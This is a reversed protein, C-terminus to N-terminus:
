DFGTCIHGGYSEMDGAYNFERLRDTKEGNNEEKGYLVGETDLRFLNIHWGEKKFREELDSVSKGEGKMPEKLRMQLKKLREWYKPFLYYMAKLEKLNKNRCCYCSLRDFYDYLRIGEEEWTIGLEYCREINHAQTFGADVLPYIKRGSKVADEDVREKEDFAIGVYEVVEYQKLNARCYRNVAELKLSTGWRCPGGCWGYGIKESGDHTKIEHTFMRRAFEDSVDLEVYPIQMASLMPLFGDRVAYVADFEMGTNAFIVLDIQRCIGILYELMRVSDKAWSVSAVYFKQKEEKKM